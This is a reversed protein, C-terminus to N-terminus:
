FIGYLKIQFIKGYKKLKFFKEEFLSWFQRFIFSRAWQFRKVTEHSLKNWRVFYYGEESGKM